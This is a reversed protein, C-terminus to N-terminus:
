ISPDFREAEVEKQTMIRGTRKYHNSIAMVCRKHGMVDIRKNIDPDFKLTANYVNSWSAPLEEECYACHSPKNFM